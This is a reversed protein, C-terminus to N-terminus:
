KRYESRPPSAGERRQAGPLAVLILNQEAKMRRDWFKLTMCFGIRRYLKKYFAYVSVVLANRSLDQGLSPLFLPGADFSNVSKLSHCNKQVFKLSFSTQARYVTLRHEGRSPGTSGKQM